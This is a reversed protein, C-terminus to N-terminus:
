KEEREKEEEDIGRRDIKEKGDKGSRKGVRKEGKRKMM